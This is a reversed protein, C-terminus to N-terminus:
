SLDKSFKRGLAWKGPGYALIALFSVLFLLALEGGTVIPIWGSKIHFTFWAGLMDLVGFFAVCSTFLGLAILLGGVLEIVGALGLLSFLEVTGGNIGGFWGLLKQAGHQAFLLGVVVRFIFYIKDSHAEAYKQFM